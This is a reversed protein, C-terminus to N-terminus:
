ARGEESPGPRLPWSDTLVNAWGLDPYERELEIVVCATAARAQEVSDCDRGLEHLGRCLAAAVRWYDVAIEDRRTSEDVESADPVVGGVRVLAWRPGRVGTSDYRRLVTGDRLDLDVYYDHDTVSAVGGGEAVLRGAGGIGVRDGM